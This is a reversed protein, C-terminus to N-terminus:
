LMHSHSCLLQEGSGHTAHLTGCTAEGAGSPGLLAVCEGPFANGRSPHLVQSSCWSVNAANGPVGTFPRLPALLLLYRRSRVQKQQLTKADLVHCTVGDWALDAPFQVALHSATKNASEM